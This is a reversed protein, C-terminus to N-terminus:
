QIKPTGHEHVIKWGKDTKLFVFTQRGNGKKEQGDQVFSVQPYYTAIAFDGFVDVKLDVIDQKYNEISSFFTEESENTSELNQRGFNRPGFKSFKGSNLHVAKLGEINKTEADKIISEIVQRIENQSEPYSGNIFDDSSNKGNM